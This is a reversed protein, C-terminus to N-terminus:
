FEFQTLLSKDDPTGGIPNRINFSLVESVEKPIRIDTDNFIKIRHRPKSSNLLSDLKASRKLDRKLENKSVFSFYSRKVSQFDSESLSSYKLSFLSEFKQNLFSLKENNSNITEQVKQLRHELIKKSSWNVKSLFNKPLFTYRPPIRRKLCQHLFNNNMKTRHIRTLYHSIDDHRNKHHRKDPKQIIETTSM